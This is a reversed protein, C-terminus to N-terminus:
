RAQTWNAAEMMKMREPKTGYDKCVDPVIAGAALQADAERLKRIIQEPTYKSKKM